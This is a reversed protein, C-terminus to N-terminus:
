VDNKEKFAAEALAKLRRYSAAPDPQLFIASGVYIVDVGTRAIQVINSEKIGGDIGIEMKPYSQRFAIIKDLVEPIFKAGYFGPNVSLFLVSDLQKVLHAFASIPTEPNIALGVRMGLKKIKRIVDQPSSAAEYHFVIKKAGAKKFDELCDEPHLVMLHVEWTLKTKLAAINDCTVSHSPVFKGDMVDFQAFDTFTETQRVLKELTAPDDTLIAPVTRTRKAM